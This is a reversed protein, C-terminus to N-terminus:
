NQQHGLDAQRRIAVRPWESVAPHVLYGRILMFLSFTQREFNTDILTWEHNLSKVHLNPLIYVRGSLGAAAPDLCRSEPAFNDTRCKTDTLANKSDLPRRRRQPFIASDVKEQRPALQLSSFEAM